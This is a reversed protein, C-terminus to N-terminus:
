IGKRMVSFRPGVDINWTTWGVSLTRVPAHENCRRTNLHSVLLCLEPRKKRLHHHEDAFFAQRSLGYERLSDVTNICQRNFATVTAVVPGPDRARTEPNCAKPFLLATTM